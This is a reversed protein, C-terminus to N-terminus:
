KAWIEVAFPCQFFLHGICEDVEKCLPCLSVVDLNWKLLRDKTYLKGNAGLYDMFVWKPPTPNNCTLRRWSVKFFEGILKLFM